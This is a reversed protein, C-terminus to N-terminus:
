SLVCIPRISTALIQRALAGDPTDQQDVFNTAASRIRDSTGPMREIASRARSRLEGALSEASRGYRQVARLDWPNSGRFTVQTGTIPDSFPDRDYNSDNGQPMHGVGSISPGGRNYADVIRGREIRLREADVQDFEEALSHM